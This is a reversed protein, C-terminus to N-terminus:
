GYFGPFAIVLLAVPILLSAALVFWAGIVRGDSSDFVLLQSDNAAVSATLRWLAAAAVVGLAASFSVSVLGFDLTPGVEYASGVVASVVLSGNWLAHVGAGALFRNVLEGFDRNQKWEWWGLVVLGSALPHVAAGLMRGIVIAEWPAGFFGGSAAYAINEVIAFGTGAAVGAMLAAQRSRPRAGAGGLGKGIEETLPAVIVLEFFLLITWPSGAIATFTPDIQMVDLLDVASEAFGLFLAYAFGLVIAHSLLAVGVGITGGGILARGPVPKELRGSVFLVVAVPVAASGVILGAASISGPDLVSWVITALGLVVVTLSEWNRAKM